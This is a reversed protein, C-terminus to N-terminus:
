HSIHFPATFSSVSTKAIAAFAGTTAANNICGTGFDLSGSTTSLRPGTPYWLMGTNDVYGFNTMDLFMLPTSQCHADTFYLVPASHQFGQATLDLNAFIITSNLTLAIYGPSEFLGVENSNADLVRLGGGGSGAPGAPGQVGDAGAAGPVGQVGQPGQINWQLLTESKNCSSGLRMTGSSAQVCASIVGGDTRASLALRGAFVLATAGTVLFAVRAKRM